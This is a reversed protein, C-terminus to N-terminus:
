RTSSGSLEYRWRHLQLARRGPLTSGLARRVDMATTARLFLEPSNSISRAQLAGLVLGAGGGSMMALLPLGQSLLAAGTGLIGWVAILVVNTRHRLTSHM